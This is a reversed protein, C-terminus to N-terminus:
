CGQLNKLRDSAVKSRAPRKERHEVQGAGLPSKRPSSHRAQAEQPPQPQLRTPSSPAVEMRPQLACEECEDYDVCEACSYVTDAGRLVKSCTDCKLEDVGPVSDVSQQALPHRLRCVAQQPPAVAQAPRRPASHSGRPESPPQPIPPPPPPPPPEDDDSSWPLDEDDDSGGPEDDDGDPWPMALEGEEQRLHMALMGHPHHRCVRRLMAVHAPSGHFARPGARMDEDDPTLELTLPWRAPYSEPWWVVCGSPARAADFTLARSQFEEFSKCRQALQLVILLCYQHSCMVGSECSCVSSPTTLIRTATIIVMALHDKPRMSAHVKMRFAFAPEPPGGPPEYVAHQVNLSDVHAYGWPGQGAGRTSCGAAYLRHGRLRTTAFPLFAELLTDTLTLSHQSFLQQVIEFCREGRFLQPGLPRLYLDGRCTLGLLPHLPALVPPVGETLLRRAYARLKEVSDAAYPELGAREVLWATLQAATASDVSDLTLDPARAAIADSAPRAPAGTTSDDDSGSENDSVDQQLERPLGDAARTLGRAHLTAAEASAHLLLGPVRDALQTGDPLSDLPEAVGVSLLSHVLSAALGVPRFVPHHRM